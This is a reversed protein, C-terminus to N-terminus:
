ESAKEEKRRGPHLKQKAEGLKEQISQVKRKTLTYGEIGALVAYSKSISVRSLDVGREQLSHHFARFNAVHPRYHGSLPALSRLQGQRIKLMGAAAIRGGRLFSSHQFAGPEKIGIYIRFSTDAVFIWMGDKVSFSGAFHDYIAEPKIYAFQKVAKDLEYDAQTFFQAEASSERDPPTEPSSASSTESEFESGSNEAISNGQFAPSKDDIGVVGHLSDKFRKSDTEVLENNKAWRFMGDGDIKVMYNLREEPTLYRVEQKELKERPRHPLDLDKGEGHDLWYFFNKNSPSNKWVTHYARLNSGHRHKADVMELFYQLDMMKPSGERFPQFSGSAKKEPQTTSDALRNDDGGARIAVSVARQWNKRAPSTNKDNSEDPKGEDEENSENTVYKRNELERTSAAVGCGQIERRTRYGRYVRQITRAARDELGVYATVDDLSGEM